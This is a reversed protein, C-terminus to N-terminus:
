RDLESGVNGDSSVYTPLLHEFAESISPINVVVVATLLTLALAGEIMAAARWGALQRAAPAGANSGSIKRASAAEIWAVDDEALIIGIDPVAATRLEISTANVFWPREGKTLDGFPIFLPEMFASLPPIVKLVLGDGVVGITVIGRHSNFATGEGHLILAAVRRSAAPPGWGSGYARALRQWRHADRHYIYALIAFAFALGGAAAFLQLLVKLGM